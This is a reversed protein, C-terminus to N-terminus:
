SVWVSFYYTSLRRDSAFDGARDRWKIKRGPGIARDLESQPNEEVNPDLDATGVAGVDLRHRHFDGVSFEPNPECRLTRIGVPTQM